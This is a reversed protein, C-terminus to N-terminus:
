SAVALTGTAGGLGAFGDGAQGVEARRHAAQGGVAGVSGLQQHLEASLYSIRSLM